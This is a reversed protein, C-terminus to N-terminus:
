GTRPGTATTHANSQAYSGPGAANALNALGAKTPVSSSPMPLPLSHEEAALPTVAQQQNDLATAAAKFADSHLWFASAVIGPHRTASELLAALATDLQAKENAHRERAGASCTRGIKCSCRKRRCDPRHSKCALCCADSPVHSRPYLRLAATDSAFLQATNQATSGQWIRRFFSMCWSSTTSEVKCPPPRRRRGPCCSPSGRNLGSARRCTCAHLHDYAALLAHAVSALRRIDLQVHLM